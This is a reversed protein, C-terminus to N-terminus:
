RWTSVLDEGLARLRVKTLGPLDVLTLDLVGPGYIKLNIPLKSVGQTDMPIRAPLTLEKRLQPRAELRGESRRVKNQGAVRFTESEIEKRIEEFDTFKRNVHLFEAYETGSDNLTGELAASRSPGHDAGLRLDDLHQLSALLSAPQFASHASSSATHILQLVLPRRTM